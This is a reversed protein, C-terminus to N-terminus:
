GVSEVRAVGPGADDRQVLDRSVYGSPAIEVRVISKSTLSTAAPNKLVCIEFIGSGHYRRPPILRVAQIAYSWESAQSPEESCAFLVTGTEICAADLDKVSSRNGGLMDVGAAIVYRYQYSRIWHTVYDWRDPELLVKPGDLGATKAASALERPTRGCGAVLCDDRSREVDAAAVALALEFSKNGFIRVIGPSVGGLALDWAALHSPTLPQIPKVSYLDVLETSIGDVRQTRAV